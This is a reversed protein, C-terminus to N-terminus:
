FPSVDFMDKKKLQNLGKLQRSRQQKSKTYRSFITDDFGNSDVESLIRVFFM